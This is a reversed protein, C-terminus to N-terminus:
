ALCVAVGEAALACAAAPLLSVGRGDGHADVELTGPPLPANAPPVHAALAEAFGAIEDATEGKMRLALLFAGVQEPAARGAAVLAMAERAEDRSLARARKAGAGVAKIYAYMMARNHM